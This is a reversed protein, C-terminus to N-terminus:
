GGAPNSRTTGSVSVGRGPPVPRHSPVQPVVDVVPIGGEPVDAPEQSAAAHERDDFADTM